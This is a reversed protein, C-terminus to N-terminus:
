IARFHSLRERRRVRVRGRGLTWLTEFLEAGRLDCIHERAVGSEDHRHSGAFLM